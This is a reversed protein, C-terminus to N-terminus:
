GLHQDEVGVSLRLQSRVFYFCPEEDRRSLFTSLSGVSFNLLGFLAGALLPPAWILHDSWGHCVSFYSDSPSPDSNFCRREVWLHPAFGELLGWVLVSQGDGKKRAESNTLTPSSVPSFWDSM